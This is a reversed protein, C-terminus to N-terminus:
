LGREVLFDYFAQIEPNPDGQVAPAVRDSLKPSQYNTGILVEPGPSMTGVNIDMGTEPAEEPRLTDAFFPVTPTNPTVPIIPGMKPIKYSPGQLDAGAQLQNLQVQEGYSKSPIRDQMAQTLKSSTNMDTRKASKGVGSVVEAM